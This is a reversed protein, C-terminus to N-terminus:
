GLARIGDPVQVGVPSARFEYATFFLALESTPKNSAQAAARLTEYFAGLLLTKGTGRRGFVVQWDGSRVRNMYGADVFLKLYDGHQDSRVPLRLHEFLGKELMAALLAADTTMSGGSTM